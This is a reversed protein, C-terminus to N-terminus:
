FARIARVCYLTSKSYSLSFGGTLMYNRANTSSYESSSWYFFTSFNGMSPSALYLKQYMQEMEGISPLFWDGYSGINAIDCIYAAYTGMGQASIIATTNSQGTGLVYGTAGTNSYIGNHWKIGSHLDSPSCVLGTGNSTNMYFILGAQYTKGYLSDLLSNDSNYISFPTEGADLREQVSPQLSLILSDLRTELLDIYAKTAADQANVPDALNIIKENLMNGSFQEAQKSHLSYPVSMLQSTGIHQYSTGGTVDMEVKVFYPGVSWDIAAFIGSVITGNGIEINLLGFNNTTDVHTESYASTGTTSGQLISVQVGICQNSILAGTNTRAVAQYKFANPAQAFVLVFSITLFTLTSFIKKKM